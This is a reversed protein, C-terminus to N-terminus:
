PTEGADSESANTSPNDTESEDSAEPRTTERIRKIFNVLVLEDEPALVLENDAQAATESEHRREENLLFPFAKLDGGAAKNVLQKAAADRKTIKRRRGDETVTVRRGLESQITTAFNKSGKPRGNPNGSRGKQFQGGEPPRGRGVTYSRESNDREPM